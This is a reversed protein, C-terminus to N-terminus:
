AKRGKLLDRLVCGGCVCVLGRVYVAYVCLVCMCWLVCVSSVYVYWVYWVCMCVGFICVGCAVYM